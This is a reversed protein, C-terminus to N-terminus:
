DPRIIGSVILAAVAVTVPPHVLALHAVTCQDIKGIIIEAPNGMSIRRARGIVTGISIIEKATNQGRGLVPRGQGVSVVGERPQGGLAIGKARHTVAPVRRPAIAMDGIRSGSQEDIIVVINQAPDLFDALVPRRRARAHQRLDEIVIFARARVENAAIAM